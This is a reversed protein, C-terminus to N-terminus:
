FPIEDKPTEDPEPVEDFLVENAMEDLQEMLQVMQGLIERGKKSCLLKLIKIVLKM